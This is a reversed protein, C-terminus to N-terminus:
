QNVKTLQGINEIVRICELYSNLAARMATSDTATVTIVADEGDMGIKTETRPLERGAEPSITPVASSAAAGSIKLTAKLM